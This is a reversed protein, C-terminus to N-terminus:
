HRFFARIQEVVYDVMEETMEPFIPLSLIRSQNAFAIPFDEPKHGLHAYANLFPLARPYNVVTAVGREELWKRLEDRRETRIVYLHYVHEVRPATKPTVLDGVGGLCQDYMTAIRRRQQTWDPLHKLKVSLIAAHL